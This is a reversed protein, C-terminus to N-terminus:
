NNIIFEIIKFGLTSFGFIASIVIATRQWANLRRKQKLNDITILSDQYKVLASVNTALSGLSENISSIDKHIEAVEMRLGPKGNGDVWAMLRDIQEEKLCGHQQEM